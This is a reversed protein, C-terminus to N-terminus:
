PAGRRGAAVFSPETMPLLPVARQRGGAGSIRSTRRGLRTGSAKTKGARVLEGGSPARAVGQKAVSAAALKVMSAVMRVLPQPLLRVVDVMPLERSCRRRREPPQGPLSRGRPRRQDLSPLACSAAVARALSLLPWSQSSSFGYWILIPPATVTFVLTPHPPPLRLRAM